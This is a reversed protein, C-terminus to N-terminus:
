RLANKRKQSAVKFSKRGGNFDLNNRLKKKLKKKIKKQLIISVIQKFEADVVSDSIKTRSLLLEVLCFLLRSLSSTLFFRSITMWGLASAPIKLNV